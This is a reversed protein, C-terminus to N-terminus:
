SREIERWIAKRLTERERGSGKERRKKSWANKVRSKMRTDMSGRKM